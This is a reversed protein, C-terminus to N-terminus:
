AACCFCIYVGRGIDDYSLYTWGNNTCYDICVQPDPQRYFSQAALNEDACGLYSTPLAGQTPDLVLPALPAAANQSASTAGTEGAFAAPASSAVLLAILALLLASNKM